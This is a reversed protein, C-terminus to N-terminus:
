KTTKINQHPENDSVQKPKEKPKDKTIEINIYFM